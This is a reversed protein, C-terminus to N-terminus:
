NVARSDGFDVHFRNTRKATTIFVDMASRYKRSLSLHSSPQDEYNRTMLIDPFIGISVRLFSITMTVIDYCEEM